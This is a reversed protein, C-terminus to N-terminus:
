PSGASKANSRLGSIERAAQLSTVVGALVMPAYMWAMSISLTTAELDHNKGVLEIGYWGVLIGFLALTLQIAFEAGRQAKAPLRNQFYRIRVHIRRRSGLIWGFVALWVMLFRSLEDTWILPNGLSRTLAGLAVCALLIVLLACAAFAATRDCATILWRLM